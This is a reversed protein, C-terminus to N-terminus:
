EDRLGLKAFIYSREESDVVLVISLVLFVTTIIGAQFVLTIYSGAHGGIQLMGYVTLGFVALPRMISKIIFDFYSVKFEKFTILPLLLGNCLVAPILTGYAVGIMGYKQVLTISLILNCVAELLNLKSLLQHKSTGFFRAVSMSQSLSIVKALALIFLIPKVVVGYKQGMWVSVFDGGILYIGAFIYLSLLLTYKSGCFFSRKVQDQDNQADLQSIYPVFVSAGSWVLKEFYTILNTAISYYTVDAVKLFTAVVIEDTFNIVRSSVSVVFSHISYSFISSIRSKDFYRRSFVIHPCSRRVQMYIRINKTMNFTVHVITVCVLSPYYFLAGYLVINRVVTNSINIRNAITHEQRGILVAYMVGFPFTFAFDIGVIIVVVKALFVYGKLDVFNELFFAIGLTFIVTLLGLLSYLVLTTNFFHNLEEKENKAEYMSVFRVIARNMGLDLLSFYGTISMVLAWIGYSTDGLKHVLVPSMVFAIVMSIIMSAYNSFANNFLKKIM